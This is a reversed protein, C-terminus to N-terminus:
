PFQKLGYGNYHPYSFLKKEVVKFALDKKQSRMHKYIPYSVLDALELLPFSMQYNHSLSWKPNFYVGVINCFHEPGNYNNGNDLLNILYKLIRHDEDKGRSELFLLGKKNNANLWHCYREVIFNLCLNYVHFANKYKQVHKVKNISASFAVYPTKEILLSLERVFRDYDFQSPEFPGEKKRIERSHFVVRRLQGKYYAKGEPWFTEKLTVIDDRFKPYEDRNMIVGTTTFWKDNDYKNSLGMSAKLIEMPYKEKQKKFYELDTTGNEDIAMISEVDEPWNDILTPRRRWEGTVVM